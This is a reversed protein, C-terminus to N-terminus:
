TLTEPTNGNTWILDITNLGSHEIYIIESMKDSNPRGNLAFMRLNEMASLLNWGNTNIKGDLPNRKERFPTGEFTNPDM